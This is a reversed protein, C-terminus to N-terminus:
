VPKCMHTGDVQQGHSLAVHSRSLQRTCAVAFRLLNTRVLNSGPSVNHLVADPAMTLSTYWHQITRHLWAPGATTYGSPSDPM